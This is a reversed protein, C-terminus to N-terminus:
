FSTGRQEPPALFFLLLGAGVLVSGAILGVDAVTAATKTRELPGPDCFGASDCHADGKAAIALIGAV